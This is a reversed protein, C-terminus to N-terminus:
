KKKPDSEKELPFLILLNSVQQRLAIKLHMRDVGEAISTSAM